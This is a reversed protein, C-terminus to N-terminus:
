RDSLPRSDNNNKKKKGDVSRPLGGAYLSSTLAVALLMADKRINMANTFINNCTCGYDLRFCRYQLYVANTM